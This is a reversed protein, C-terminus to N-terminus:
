QNISISKLFLMQEPTQIASTSPLNSHLCNPAESRLSMMPLEKATSDCTPVTCTSNLHWEACALALCGTMHKKLLLSTSCSLQSPLNRKDLACLVLCTMSCPSGLMVPKQKPNPRPSLNQPMQPKSLMSRLTQGLPPAKHSQAIISARTSM